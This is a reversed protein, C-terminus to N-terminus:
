SRLVIREQFYGLRNELWFISAKREDCHLASECDNRLATLVEAEEVEGGTLSRSMEAVEGGFGVFEAEVCSSIEEIDAMGVSVAVKPFVAVICMFDADDVAICPSADAADIGLGGEAGM